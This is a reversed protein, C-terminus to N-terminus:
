ADKKVSYIIHPMDMGYYHKVFEGVECMGNRVAVKQSPANSDRVLSFVENAGLTEFAYQKCAKASEIAYGNHWYQKQFLYGIELVERGGIDQMTLGCQGIFVDQQKLIVGWLGFGYQRYCEKQKALWADVEEDSFAHEYAYMVAEDQLIKCLDDRDADVLERLLLRETEIQM